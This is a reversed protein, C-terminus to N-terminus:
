AGPGDNRGGGLVQAAAAALRTEVTADISSTETEVVCGGRTLAADEVLDWGPDGEGAAGRVRACDDPHMRVRARRAAVPLARMATRLADLIREPQTELERGVVQRAVAIALAVLERETEEDVQALPRALHDLALRLRRLLEQAEARGIALGEERGKDFGQEFGQQSARAGDAVPPQWRRVDALSEATVIRSSM